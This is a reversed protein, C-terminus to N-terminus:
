ERLMVLFEEFSIKGVEFEGNPVLSNEVVAAGAYRAQDSSSIEVTNGNRRAVESIWELMPWKQPGAIEITGNIPSSVARESIIRAVDASAIPQINTRPLVIKGDAKTSMYMIGPAFEFFQTAQVITFPIGSARVLDEQKQKARMYGSGQLDKTGVISLILYHKVGAKTASQAINQTSTSFFDMVPQDEFSPSNSVDIVVDAGSFAADLGEGTLTNVGSSPSAPIVENNKELNASAQSGILGTAGIVVVKM